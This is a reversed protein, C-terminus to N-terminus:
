QLPAPHLLLRCRPSMLLILYSLAAGLGIRLDRFVLEYNYIILTKTFPNITGGASGGATLTWVVDFIQFASIFEVVLSVALSPLLMPITIRLMRQLSGAGDVQTRIFRASDRTYQGAPRDDPLRIADVYPRHRGMRNAHLTRAALVPLGRILGLQYLLGNFAGYEGNLLWGWLFGNVVPPVMWPIIALTRSRGPFKENLLLAAAFAIITEM